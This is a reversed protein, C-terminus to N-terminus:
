SADDTASVRVEVILRTVEHGRPEFRLEWAVKAWGPYEFGAFDDPPVHMFDIQPQWVRGIAGITISSGPREALVQFGQGPAALDDIRLSVSEPARGRLRDPITRLSFLARVISSRAMDLHRVAQWASSVPVGIDVHDVQDLRPTPIFRDLDSM